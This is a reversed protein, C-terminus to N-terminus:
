TQLIITDKTALKKFKLEKLYQLPTKYNLAQHPRFTNWINQWKGIEQNMKDRDQWINGLQYFEDKDSGHSREVYTNQKPQRPYIFYHPMNIDKCLKEFEKLFESGNDTQINQIPFPFESLCKKLFKTGNRSSLSPYVGLIRYKTLVDIATFQFLKQGGPLMIYKTDMQVMDGPKSISFGRPFRRKPRLAAKRRKDSKKKNILGRRKFIRGVTSDSTIINHERELIERIKYKSWAPYSKRIKCALMVTESSTTPIRTKKPARSQENLGIPGKEKLQKIWLGITERNYGFHRSTLSINNKNQRCWDLIKLKHKARETLYGAREVSRAISIAGPLINGYITM